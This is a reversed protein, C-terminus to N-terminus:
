REDGEAASGRVEAVMRVMDITLEHGAHGWRCATQSYGGRSSGRGGIEMDGRNRSNEFEWIAFDLDHGLASLALM